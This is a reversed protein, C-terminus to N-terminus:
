TSSTARPRTAEGSLAWFIRTVSAASSRGSAPMANARRVIGRRALLANKRRGKANSQANAIPKMLKTRASPNAMRANVAAQSGGPSAPPMANRRELASRRARAHASKKTLRRKWGTVPTSAPM